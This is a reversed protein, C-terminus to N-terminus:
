RPRRVRTPYQTVLRVTVRPIAGFKSGSPPGLTNFPQASDADGVIVYPYTPPQDAVGDYVTVVRSTTASVPFTPTLLAARIVVLLASGLVGIADFSAM